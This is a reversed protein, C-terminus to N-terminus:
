RDSIYRSLSEDPNGDAVGREHIQGLLWLFQSEDAIVEEDPGQEKIKDDLFKIADSNEGFVIATLKRWNTLTNDTVGDSMKRM